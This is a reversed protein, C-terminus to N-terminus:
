AVQPPVGGYNMVYATHLIHACVVYISMPIGIVFAWVPCLNPVLYCSDSLVGKTNRHRITRHRVFVRRRVGPTEGRPLPTHSILCLEVREFAGRVSHTGWWLGQQVRSCGRCRVNRTM